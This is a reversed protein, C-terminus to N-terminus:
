AKKIEGGCSPKKVGTTEPFTIPLKNISRVALIHLHKPSLLIEMM